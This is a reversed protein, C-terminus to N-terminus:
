LRRRRTRAAVGSELAQEVVSRRRNSLIPARTLVEARRMWTAMDLLQGALLEKAAAHFARSGIQRREFQASWDRRLRRSHRSDSGSTRFVFFNNIRPEVSPLIGFIVASVRGIRQDFM